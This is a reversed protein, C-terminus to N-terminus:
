KIGKYKKYTIFSIGAALITITIVIPLIKSIGTKPLSTKSASSDSSKPTSSNTSNGNVLVIRNNDVDNTPYTTNSPVVSNTPTTNEESPPNVEQGESSTITIEQTQSGITVVDADDTTAEINAFTIDTTGLSADDKVKLVITALKGTTTTAEYNKTLLTFLSETQTIEWAETATANVVEFIDADYELTFGVGAIAENIETASVEITVRQGPQPNSPSTVFKITCVSAAYCSSLLSMSFLCIIMIAFVKLVNNKM